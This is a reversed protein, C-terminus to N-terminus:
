IYLEGEAGIPVPARYEELVYCTTNDIPRGIPVRGQVEEVKYSTSWITTETPGYMNWLTESRAILEKALDSPLTLEM